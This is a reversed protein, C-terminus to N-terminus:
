FDFRDVNSKDFVFPAGLIVQSGDVKVAGLRGAKFTAPDLPGQGLAHAVQVTLYGLDGTNWLVISDIWGDHIYPKCANPLALGIVKVDRRDAQKMAEAAGPVAPSSIGMILKVNPYVKLINQAETFAQDQKDDSPRIAALTLDPYKEALRAKIHKIWENQNAATLSATIIAFEGKGGLLTAARDTLTQAIGEPTAQNVFVDRADAATDADWTVVKIGKARAKRLVTALGERNEVSAAIVDVGRTIWTEVVENQKAPDTETPGDWLLRVNLEKAAEEAGQRCSVFYPNGKNKPMMAVTFGDSSKRGCGSLAVTAIALTAALRKM